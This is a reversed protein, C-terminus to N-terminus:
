QYIRILNGDPFRHIVKIDKDLILKEHLQINVSNNEYEEVTCDLLALKPKFWDYLVTSSIGAMYGHHPIQIVDIDWDKDKYTEQMRSITDETMDGTFLMQFEGSTLMLVLSNGNVDKLTSDFSYLCEISMGIDEIVDGQKLPVVDIDTKRNDVWEQWEYFLIANNIIAYINPDKEKEFFEATFPSYYVADVNDEHTDMYDLFAGIHDVHPHTLFWGKVHGGHNDIFESVRPMDENLFGGDIIYLSKDAIIGYCAGGWYTPWPLEYIEIYNKSEKGYEILNGPEDGFVDAASSTIRLKHGNDKLLIGALISAGLVILIIVISIIRKKM